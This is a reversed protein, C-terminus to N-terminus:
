VRRARRRCRRPGRSGPGAPSSRGTGDRLAGRGARRRAAGRVSPRLPSVQRLPTVEARDAQDAGPRDDDALGALEVVRAALRELHEPLVAEARDDDVRVRGRDHGVRAEGVARVQFGEVELGDCVHEPALPGIRQQRRHAALRREVEPELERLRAHEIREPDLQDARRRLHDAACLVALEEALGHAARAQSHRLRQDHGVKGLHRAVERERHDQARSERQATVAAAGRVRPGLELHQEVARQTLAGHRLHEDLLRQEAPVLELELHDAVAAVVHHDHARDLVEVRHAHVRAVRDGDRRLHREGVLGVLLQPVGGGRDDTRDADFTAAGVDLERALALGAVHAHDLHVRADRAGRREGRLRGAIRDGLDRRLQGDAVREVLDRVVQGPRRRRAELGREVVHHDLHRTERELLERAGVRGEARLHFGDALRHPDPARESLRQELRQARALEVSSRDRGPGRELLRRFPEM